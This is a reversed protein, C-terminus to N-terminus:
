EEVMVYSDLVKCTKCFVRVRNIRVITVKLEREDLGCNVCTGKVTGKIDMDMFNNIHEVGSECLVYRQNKNREFHSSDLYQNIIQMAFDQTIRYKIGALKRFQINEFELYGKEKLSSRLLVELRKSRNYNGKIELSKSLNILPIKDGLKSKPKLYVANM